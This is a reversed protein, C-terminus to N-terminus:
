MWNRVRLAGTLTVAPCLRTHTQVSSSMAGQLVSYESVALYSLRQTDGVPRLTQHPISPFGDSPLVVSCRSAHSWFSSSRGDQSSSRGRDIRPLRSPCPSLPLPTILGYAQRSILDTTLINIRTRLGAPLSGMPGGARQIQRYSGTHGSAPSHLVKPM